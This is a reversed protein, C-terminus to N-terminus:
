PKAASRRGQLRAKFDDLEHDGFIMVRKLLFPATYFANAGPNVTVGLEYGNRQMADLVAENADGYPYAFHRVKVGATGLNKEVVSRPQKLEVDLNQRYLTDGEDARRETLNRHSKSHAQIDMTGARWMEDMQPWTLADRSGIFDTYVFMTAAFGLRKLAPYAYRYVSEYGDDFTIAVSRQPLAQAGALFSRVDALRVVHYDNAALWELQAEFKAPSVVMKSNGPGVRHYCLITITQAGEPTVGLPNPAVLPVVLPSGPVPQRLDRNAESIQWAKDASGLWQAAIGQLTDGERPVYVLVRPSRGAVVGLATPEAKPPASPEPAPPAPQPTTCAVLLAALALALIRGCRRPSLLLIVAPPPM